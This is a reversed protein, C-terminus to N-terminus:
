RVSVNLYNCPCLPTLACPKACGVSLEALLTSLCRWILSIMALTFFLLAPAFLLMFVALVGLVIVLM